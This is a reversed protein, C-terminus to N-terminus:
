PKGARWSRGHSLRNTMADFAHVLLMGGFFGCVMGAAVVAGSTSRSLLRSLLYTSGLLPLFLASGRGFKFSTDFSPRTLKRWSYWGMVAAMPTAVLIFLRWLAARQEPAVDGISGAALLGGVAIFLSLGALGVIRRPTEAWDAIGM